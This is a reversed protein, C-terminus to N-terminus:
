FEFLLWYCRMIYLKILVVMQTVTPWIGVYLWLEYKNKSESFPVSAIEHKWIFNLGNISSYMCMNSYSSRRGVVTRLKNNTGNSHLKHLTLSTLMKDVITFLYESIWTIQSPPPPPRFIANFICLAIANRNSMKFNTLLDYPLRKIPSQCFPWVFWNGLFRINWHNRIFDVKQIKCKSLM